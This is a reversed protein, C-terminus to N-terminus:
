ILHTLDQSSFSYDGTSVQWDITSSGPREPKVTFRVRVIAGPKVDLCTGMPFVWRGWHTYEESPKNSLTIDGDMQAEFWAALANCRGSKSCCFLMEAEFNSTALELSVTAPDIDWMQQPKALLHEEKIHYRCGHMKRSTREGITSLNVGYRPQKWFEVDEALLEDYAPVLWSSVRSPIMRGGPKLWRDRALLVMPLLNEDVALGGLWESVILNVPEPLDVNGIDDQFVRIRETLGNESIISRALEATETKEVAYVIRAGARAAFISLLGTGAGVDLVVSDPTVWRALARRFAECRIGDGLMLKHLNLDGYNIELSM